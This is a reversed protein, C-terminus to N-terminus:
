AKARLERWLGLKEHVPRDSFSFLVAEEAADHRYPRWSPAVFIDHPGWDFTEGDIVTRGRGEVVVFVTSDTSRYPMASFGRPLLQMAAGITPMAWEGTVPNVYRMRYGHCADIDGGRSMRALAERTREYTYNLIPSSLARRECVAPLLGSGYRAISDGEPRTLPFQDEGYPEFFVANLLDVIPIDLGDLWVMPGDTENGHDHWTWYPTIVFDGPRMTTKEGDVATYAGAGEIIFRLASQTHRHSPAIEGPLILQLGAFLSHTVRPPFQGRLAPNELILVRRDAERASILGGAEMLMPRVEEYRWLVPAEPPRPERSQIGKLVEWLPALSRQAIKTYFAEREPTRRPQAAM